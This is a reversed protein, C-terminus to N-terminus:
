QATYGGDIVIWVSKGAQKLIPVLWEVLRAALQVWAFLAGVGPEVRGAAVEPLAVVFARFAWVAM